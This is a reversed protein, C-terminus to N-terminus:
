NLQRYLHFYAHTYTAHCWRSTVLSLAMAVNTEAM